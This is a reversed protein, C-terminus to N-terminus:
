KIAKLDAAIAALTEPSIKGGSMNALQKLTMAKYQPFMPNTTISPIHGELIAKARPDAALTEIATDISFASAGAPAAAKPVSASSPAALAAGRAM